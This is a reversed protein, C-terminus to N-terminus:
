TFYSGRGIWRGINFLSADTLFSPHLGVGDGRKRSSAWLSVPSSHSKPSPSQSLLCRPGVAASRCWRHVIMARSRDCGIQMWRAAATFVDSHRGSHRTHLSQFCFRQQAIFSRIRTRRMGWGEQLEALHETHRGTRGLCFYYLLALCVSSKTTGRRGGVSLVPFLIRMSYSWCLMVQNSFDVQLRNHDFRVM